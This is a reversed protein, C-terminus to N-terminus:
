GRKPPPMTEQYSKRARIAECPLLDALSYIVLDPMM